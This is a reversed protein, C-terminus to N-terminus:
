TVNRFMKILTVPLHQGMQPPEISLILAKGIIYVSKSIAIQGRKEAFCDFQKTQSLFLLSAALGSVVPIKDRSSAQLSKIRSSTGTSKVNTRTTYNIGYYITIYPHHAYTCSCFVSSHHMAGRLALLPLSMQTSHKKCDSVSSQQSQQKSLDTM